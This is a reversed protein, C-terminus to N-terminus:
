ADKQRFFINEADGGVQWLCRFMGWAPAFVSIVPWSPLSVALAETAPFPNTKHREIKFHDAAPSHGHTWMHCTQLSLVLCSPQMDQSQTLRSEDVHMNWHFSIGFGYNQPILIFM